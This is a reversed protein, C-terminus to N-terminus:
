LHGVFADDMLFPNRFGVGGLTRGDQFDETLLITIGAASLTAWLMADWFSLNRETVARIARELTDAQPVVVPFLLQWDSVQAAAQDLPMKGKRTVTHFFEGLVQLSLVCDQDVAADVIAAAKQHRIGADCDIAYVLLNTDLSFREVRMPRM